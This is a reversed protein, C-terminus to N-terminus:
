RHFAVKSQLSGPSEDPLLAISLCILGISDTRPAWLWIASKMCGPNQWGKPGSTVVSEAQRDTNTTPHFGGWGRCVYVCVCLGVPRSQSAHMVAQRSISSTHSLEWSYPSFGEPLTPRLCIVIGLGALRALRMGKGEWMLVWLMKTGFPLSSSRIIVALNEQVRIETKVSLEIPM